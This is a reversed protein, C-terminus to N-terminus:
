LRTTLITMLNDDSLKVPNNKQGTKLVIDQLQAKDLGYEGLRKIKLNVVMEEIRSVFALAYDADTAASSVSVMRGLRAYKKLAKNEPASEILKEVNIRNAIGALTGCLVGHPIDIISGVSSAYGHIAGLGANALTIGSILAAYALASRAEIDHGNFFAKEINHLIMEIARVALSDTFENSATSVYSEVLQSFADMGSAATIDSPCDLTLEPDLLAIDPIFNDHRLSKKFGEPGVESLVANKTAESGTGSTTPVAAFPIKIGPHQKKGIGELYEKVPEKLLLMASVAKGADIVSGGGIAVVVDIKKNKYEEVIEDVDEPSPEKIIRGLYLDDCTRELKDLFKRGKLGSKFSSAGTILLYRKGYRGLIDPLKELAGTGFVIRPFGSVNFANVM